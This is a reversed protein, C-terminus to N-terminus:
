GHKRAALVAAKGIREPTAAFARAMGARVVATQMRSLLADFEASLTDLKLQPAQQLATFKDVSILVARPAHHKTIVM